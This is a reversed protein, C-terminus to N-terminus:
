RVLLVLSNGLIVLSLLGWIWGVAGQQAAFFLPVPPIAILAVATLYAEFNHTRLWKVFGSV